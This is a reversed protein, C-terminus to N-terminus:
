ERGEEAKRAILFRRKELIREVDRDLAALARDATARGRISAEAHEYVKTAIQEWEPVKPTAKVRELQERFAQVYRDGALAPHNWAEKRAPLDGSLEYFRVQQAPESLFEILKWAERKHKSGRFISLSSGGALSVGPGDPGPLPATMWRDQVEPPLKRRFEGVNWPGTIYMAFDGAAFQQYINAIQSNSFAPALGDRFFSLYFDFARRFEPDQFAGHGGADDLLRAGSQLGLAVPQAWEDTPLLIAWRNKGGQAKVKEAIDRLEEWTRPPGSAGAAALLDTRYFLLRTDVYWPIGYVSGDIVNTDWIGPFHGAPHVIGSAAIWPDLPALADIAVFEPIWSNGIQALDPTADGVFATLLKEHAATFPIQQLEVKVGPNQREFEPLLEAVVEGERGLGWFELTITGAQQRACGALALILVALVRLGCDM